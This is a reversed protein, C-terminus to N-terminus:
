NAFLCLPHQLLPTIPYFILYKFIKNSLSHTKPSNLDKKNITLIGLRSVSCVDTIGNCNQIKPDCCTTAM